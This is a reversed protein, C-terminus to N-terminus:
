AHTRGLHISQGEDIVFQTQESTPLVQAREQMCALDPAHTVYTEGEASVRTRAGRACPIPPRVCARAAAHEACDARMRNIRTAPQEARLDCRDTRLERRVDAFSGVLPRALSALDR